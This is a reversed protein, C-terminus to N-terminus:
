APNSIAFYIIIQPAKTQVIHPHPVTKLCIENIKAMSIKSTHVRANDQLLWFGHHKYDSRKSDLELKLKDLLKCYYDSNFTTGVPLYEVLLIGKYDWFITVMIKKTTLKVSPREPRKEGDYRWEASAFLGSDPQYSVWTEDVTVLRTRYLHWNAGFSASFKQCYSLRAGIEFESLIKPVWHAFVKKMGIQNTILSHVKSRPLGTRDAIQRISLKRDFELISSIAEINESTYM